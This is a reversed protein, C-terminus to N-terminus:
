KLRVRGGFRGKLQRKVEPGLDNTQLELRRLEEGWEAKQLARGSTDTLNNRSLNLVRLGKLWGARAIVQGGAASIGNESLNLEKLENFGRAAALVRVGGLGLANHSLDLVRLGTLHPSSVLAAVTPVDIRNRSLTLHTLNAVAPSAFLTRLEALIPCRECTCMHSLDLEALRTLNPSGLISQVQGSGHRLRVGRVTPAVRFLTESVSAFRQAELVVAAVFGRRFTWVPSREVADREALIGSARLDATWEDAHKRLLARERKQLAARQDDDASCRDLECQVRIFEARAAAAPDGSEDLFDAYVLRPLDDDPSAVIAALFAAHDHM